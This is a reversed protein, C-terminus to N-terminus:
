NINAIPVNCIIQEGWGIWKIYEIFTLARHCVDSVRVFISEYFSHCKSITNHVIHGVNWHLSHFENATRWSFYNFLTSSQRIRWTCSALCLTIGSIPFYTLFNTYNVSPHNWKTSEHRVTAGTRMQCRDNSNFDKFTM